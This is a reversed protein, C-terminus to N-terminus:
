RSRQRSNPASYKKSLDASNSSATSVMLANLRERGRGRRTRVHAAGAGRPTTGLRDCRPVFSGDFTKLRFIVIRLEPLEGRTDFRDVLLLTFAYGPFNM